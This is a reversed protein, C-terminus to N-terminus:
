LTYLTHAGHLDHAGRPTPKAQQVGTGRNATQPACIAGTPPRSPHLGTPRRNATQPQLLTPRQGHEKAGTPRKPQGNAQQVGKGRNATQPACIAGRQRNHHTCVQQGDTPQRLNCCPQGNATTGRQGQQGDSPRLNGGNATTIPAFRNATQQSDSTAVPNATPRHEQQRDTQKM